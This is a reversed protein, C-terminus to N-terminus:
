QLQHIQRQRHQGHQQNLHRQRDTKNNKDRESHHAPVVIGRHQAGAMATEGHTGRGGRHGIDLRHRLM